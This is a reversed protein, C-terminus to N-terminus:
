KKKKDEEIISKKRKKNFVPELEEKDELMNDTKDEIDEDIDEEIISKKRKKNFVPELEEKDELMSDTKDEIDEDIDKVDDGIDLDVDNEDSEIHHIERLWQKFNSDNKLKSVSKCAIRKAHKEDDFDDFIYRYLQSPRHQCVFGPSNESMKRNQTGM